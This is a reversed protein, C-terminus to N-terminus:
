FLPTSLGEWPFVVPSPVHLVLMLLRVRWLRHFLISDHRSLSPSTQLMIGVIGSGGCDYLRNYSGDGYYVPGFWANRSRLSSIDRVPLSFLALWEQGVAALSTVLSTERPPLRRAEAGAPYLVANELHCPVM